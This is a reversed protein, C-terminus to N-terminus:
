ICGCGKQCAELTEFPTVGKCGGYLFEVCKKEREDYYYRKVAMRCPGPDPKLYCNPHLKVPEGVDQSKRHCAGLFLLLFVPAVM